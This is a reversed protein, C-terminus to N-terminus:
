LRVQSSDIKVNTGRARLTDLYALSAEFFDSWIKQNNKMQMFTNNYEEETKNYEAFIDERKQILSDSHGRYTEEAVLLDVYIKSITDVDVDAEDDCSFFLLLALISLLLKM